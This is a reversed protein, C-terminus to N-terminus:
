LRNLSIDSLLTAVDSQKVIKMKRVKPPMLSIRAVVDLIYADAGRFNQVVTILQKYQRLETDTM